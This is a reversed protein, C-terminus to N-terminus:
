KTCDGLRKGSYKMTMAMPQGGRDVNMTMTGDYTDVGYTFEAAMTMAQPADCKMTYTVKNGTVKYDSMKCSPDAGGRGGRGAPMQPASKMPDAADAPSICQTTTTAPMQMGPMSMEMKVEWQGDRRPAQAFMVASIGAIATAAVLTRLKM